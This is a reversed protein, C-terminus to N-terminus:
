GCITLKGTALNGVSHAESNTLDVDELIIYKHEHDEIRLHVIGQAKCFEVIDFRDMDKQISITITAPIAWTICVSGSTGEMLNLFYSPIFFKKAISHKSTEIDELTCEKWHKNLKVELLKLEQKSLSNNIDRLYKAVDRLQTKCRFVKLQEKFEQFDSRLTEDGFKKVLHEMLSYNLFNCYLNLRTWIDGLTSTGDLKTLMVGLFEQHLKKNRVSLNSLRAKFVDVSINQSQLIDFIRDSLVSFLDELIDIDRQVSEPTSPVAFNVDILCALLVM